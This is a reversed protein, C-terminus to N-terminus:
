ADEFDFRYPVIVALSFWNADDSTDNIIPTDPAFTELGSGLDRERFLSAIEDSLALGQELEISRRVNIVIRIGGEEFFHRDLVPKSGNVVPYQIVIFAEDDKAPSAVMNPPLLSVQLVPPTDTLFANLRATVLAEVLAAPM